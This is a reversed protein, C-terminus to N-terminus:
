RSESPPPHPLAVGGRHHGMLLVYLFGAGALAAAIPLAFSAGMSILAAALLCGSACGLDWGGESIMHFRLPCQSQKALNYVPALLVPLAIPGIAAGLTNATVAAVPAAYAAAKILILAITAGYAFQIARAGHGLDISRGVGFTIAAGFLAALAMAGGYSGYREGLTVFLAIRWMLGSLAALWGDAFFLRRALRATDRDIAAEQPIAVRPAGFLAAAALAQFAAAVYFAAHAGADILALGTAIPAVVGATANLAHMAGIQGGRKESDGLASIYAHYSTWYLVSGIADAVIYAVLARDLGRVEPILVYPLAGIAAGAILVNRLGFRQALPLVGRRLVFRGATVAALVCLVFPAPVGSKLLFVFVFAGGGNQAFALLAFHIYARNLARNTFVSVVGQYHGPRPM